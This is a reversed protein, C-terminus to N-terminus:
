EIGLHIRDDYILNLMKLATEFCVGQEKAYAEIALILDVSKPTDKVTLKENELEKRWDVDKDDKTAYVISYRERDCSEKECWAVADSIKDIDDLEINPFVRYQDDFDTLNIWVKYM